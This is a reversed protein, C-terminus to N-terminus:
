VLLILAPILNSIANEVADNPPRVKAERSGTSAGAPAASRGFGTTTMVDAEVTHNGRSDLIVRLEIAEIMTM